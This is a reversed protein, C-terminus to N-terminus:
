DQNGADGYGCGAAPSALMDTPWASSVRSTGATLSACAAVKGLDYILDQNADGMLAFVMDVGETVLADAIGERLKM